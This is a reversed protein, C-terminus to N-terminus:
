VKTCVCLEINDTEARILKYWFGNRSYRFEGHFNIDLVGVQDRTVTISLGNQRDVVANGLLTLSTVYSNGLFNSYAIVVPEGAFKLVNSHNGKRSKSFRLLSRSEGFIIVPKQLACPWSLDAIHLVLEQPLREATSRLLNRFSDSEIHAFLAPGQLLFCAKYANKEREVNHQTLFDLDVPWLELLDRLRLRESEPVRLHHLRYCELHICYSRPGEGSSCQHCYAKQCFWDQYPRFLPQQIGEPALFLSGSTKSDSFYTSAVVIEHTQVAAHCLLCTSKGKNHYM